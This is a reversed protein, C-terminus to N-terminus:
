LHDVVLLEVQEVDVRSRRAVRAEVLFDGKNSHGYVPLGELIHLDEFDVSVLDESFLFAPKM